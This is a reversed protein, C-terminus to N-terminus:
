RAEEESARHDALRLIAELWAVGWWGYRDTLKWFRDSVGSDLAAMRHRTNGRMVYEGHRLEVELEDPDDQPPAFPRCWGHHSGVLHLVLEPDTATALVESAREVMEVSLLEHRYGSPYGARRRAQDRSRRDRPSGMSKALPLQQMAQKVPNGDALWLQFRRDAKGVDHLWAALKLDSAMEQTLGLSEVFRGAWDEVDRSHRELTVAREIFSSDDDETSTDRVRETPASLLYRGNPLLITRARASRLRALIKPWDLETGEDLDQPLDELWVEVAAGEVAEDESHQPAADRAASPLGWLSLADPHTRLSARGRALWQAWDGLDVVATTSNSPDWNNGSIGGRKAPVVLTDGPLLDGAWVIESDEGAWRLASAGKSFREDEGSSTGLLDDVERVAANALWAKVAHIPISVAELSSPPCAAVLAKLEDLGKKPESDSAAPSDSEPDLWSEEVDARWVIQVEPVSRDPGHLWLSIDPDPEPAPSTQAWADIHSPLLVPADRKPPTLETLASPDPLLDDMSTIGFDVSTGQSRLWAWTKPLAEGYVPDPERPNVLDSRMLIVANSSGLDGRRDLRGFRQRLADLSACETVLADLDLDAGAEICQTAVIVLPRPCPRDSRSRAAGARALLGHDGDLVRKRDLPRMRGTLLEVDFDGHKAELLGRISRATDVRNVVVGVVKCGADLFSRARATCAEAVRQRKVAEPSSATTKVEELDAVKSAQLRQSLVPHARDEPGIRFPEVEVSDTTASMSVFAFRKSPSQNRWRRSVADLTQAFPRALHVEDLLFLTDNGLLGAHIPAMSPSVGYGRFLLRSGVQDVTSVGLVPQDPRRAWDHERRMGGRLVAVQFPEDEEVRGAFLALLRDRVSSAAGDKMRRLIKRAHEAGQDVVIRRDVVLFIRRPAAEPKVALTYLAVDLASTKGSGTPLDLVTPWGLELVREALRRQWPFPGYGHVDEFYAEFTPLNM